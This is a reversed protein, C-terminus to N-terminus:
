DRRRRESFSVINASSLLEDRLLLSDLNLPMFDIIGGAPAARGLLNGQLLTAGSDVAAELHASVEIGAVLVEAGQNRFGNFLPRLLKAARPVAAVRRFWNGEIKVVDPKVLELREVTPFGTGFDDAALRFSYSRLLSAIEAAEADDLSEMDSIVCTVQPAEPFLRDRESAMFAIQDRVMKGHLRLDFPMQMGVDAYLNPFNRLHVIRALMDAFIKEADTDLYVVRQEGIEPDVWQEITTAAVSVPVLVDDQLQFIPQYATKLLLQGHRGFENGVEDVLISHGFLDPISM